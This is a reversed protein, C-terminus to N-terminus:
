LVGGSQGDSSSAGEGAISDMVFENWSSWDMPDQTMGMYPQTSDSALWNSPDQLMLDPYDFWTQGTAAGDVAEPMQLHTQTSLEAAKADFTPFSSLDLADQGPPLTASQIGLKSMQAEIHAAKAKKYLKRIPRWLAGSSTDAIIEGWYSFRTDIVNWAREVMDGETQTCLESLAVALPHWQPYTSMWWQTGHSTTLVYQEQYYYRQVAPHLPALSSSVEWRESEPISKRPDELELMSLAMRLRKESSIAPRPEGSRVQHFPYQVMMWVRLVVIKAVVSALSSALHSPDAARVFATELAQASKFTAKEFAQTSEVMQQDTQGTSSVNRALSRHSISSTIRSSMHCCLSFTMDTPGTRDTLPTSTEPGFDDDNINTCSKIDYSLPNTLPEETGRDEVARVDLVVLGWWIRRRMEAVYPLFSSGDGDKHLGLGRAVRVALATLVWSAKSELLARLCCVYVVLAQLAELRTSNLYDARALAVEFCAKYRPVLVAKEEGLRALCAAPTLTSVAGFYMAFCLAEEAADLGHNSRSGALSYLLQSTTPRHVVKFLFDVNSFYITGLTRIREPSPHQLVDPASLLLGAAPSGILAVSPPSQPASSTGSGHRENSEPTYGLAASDEDESDSPQELTQKIGDVEACLNSWFESSLYRGTAGASGEHGPQPPSAQSSAPPPPPSPPTRTVNAEHLIGVAPDPELRLPRQAKTGTEVTSSKAEGDEERADKAASLAAPDVKGLIEELRALRGILENNRPQRQQRPRRRAPFECVIGQRTCPECPWLRPCKVKRKRCNSCSLPQLRSGDGSM